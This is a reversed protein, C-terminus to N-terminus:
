HTFPSLGLRPDPSATRSTITGKERRGPREVRSGWLGGQDSPAGARHCNEEQWSQSCLHCYLAKGLHLFGRVLTDNDGSHFSRQTEQLVPCIAPGGPDSLLDERSRRVRAKVRQCPLELTDLM